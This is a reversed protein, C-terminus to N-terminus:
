KRVFVVRALVKTGLLTLVGQYVGPQAPVAGPNRLKIKVSDLEETGTPAANTAPDHIEVDTSPILHPTTAGAASVTVPGTLDTCRVDAGVVVDPLPVWEAAPLAGSTIIYATAVGDDSGSRYLMSFFDSWQGLVDNAFDSLDYRGKAIEDLAKRVRRETAGTLDTTRDVARKTGEILKTRRHKPLAM